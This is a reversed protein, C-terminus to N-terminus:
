LSSHTAKPRGTKVAMFQFQIWQIQRQGMSHSHDYGELLFEQFLLVKQYPQSSLLSVDWSDTRCIRLFLDEGRSGVKCTKCASFIRAPLRTLCQERSYAGAQDQSHRQACALSYVICCSANELMCKGVHLTYPTPSTQKQPPKLM